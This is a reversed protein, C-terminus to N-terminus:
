RILIAALPNELENNAHRGDELWRKEAGWYVDQEPEWVDERGGSFGFTKFGMNELAVNGALVM